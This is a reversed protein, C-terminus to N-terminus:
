QIAEKLINSQLYLPGGGFIPEKGLSRFEKASLDYTWWKSRFPVDYAEIILVEDKWPCMERVYWRARVSAPKRIIREEVPILTGSEERFMHAIIDDREHAFDKSSDTSFLFVRDGQAFIAQIGCVGLRVLPENPRSVLYIETVCTEKWSSSPPPQLSPRKILFRGSPDPGADVRFRLQETMGNKFHVLTGVRNDIFEAWVVVEHADNLWAQKGPVDIQKVSGNVNVVLVKKKERNFIRLETGDSNRSVKILSKTGIEPCGVERLFHNIERYNYAYLDKGSKRMNPEMSCSPQVSAISAVLMLLLSTKRSLTQAFNEIRM